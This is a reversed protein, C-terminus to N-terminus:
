TMRLRRKPEKKSTDVQLATGDVWWQPIIRDRVTGIASTTSRATPSLRDIIVAQIHFCLGRSARRYNFVPCTCSFVLTAGVKTEYVYYKKKGDQSFATSICRGRM